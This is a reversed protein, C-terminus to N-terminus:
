GDPSAFSSLFGTVASATLSGAALQWGWGNGWALASGVVVFGTQISSCWNCTIWYAFLDRDHWSPVKEILRDRLRRTIEDSTVLLTARWTAGIALVLTLGTVGPRDRPQTARLLM